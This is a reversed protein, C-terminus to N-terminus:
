TGIIIAAGIAVTILVNSFPRTEPIRTEQLSILAYKDAVDEAGPTRVMPVYRRAAQPRGHKIPVHTVDMTNNM